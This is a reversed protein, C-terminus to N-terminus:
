SNLSIPTVNVARKKGQMVSISDVMGVNEHWWDASSISPDNLVNNPMWENIDTGDDFEILCLTRNPFLQKRTNEILQKMSRDAM